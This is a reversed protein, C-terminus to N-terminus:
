QLHYEDIDTTHPPGSKGVQRSDTIALSDTRRSYLCHKINACFPHLQNRRDQRGLQIYTTTKNIGM